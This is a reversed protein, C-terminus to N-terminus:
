YNLFFIPHGNREGLFICISDQDQLLHVLRNNRPEQSNFYYPLWKYNGSYKLCLIILELYYTHICYPVSNRMSTRTVLTKSTVFVTNEQCQFSFIMFSYSVRSSLVHYNLSFKFIMLSLGFVEYKWFPQSIEFVFFISM